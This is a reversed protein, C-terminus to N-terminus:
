GIQGLFTQTECCETISCAFRCRKFHHVRLIRQHERSVVVVVSFYAVPKSHGIQLRQRTSELILVRFRVKNIAPPTTAIAM